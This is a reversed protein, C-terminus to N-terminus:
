VHEKETLQDANSIAEFKENFENQEMVYITHKDDDPCFVVVATGDRSNTCDIAAALWHYIEGTKNHRVLM